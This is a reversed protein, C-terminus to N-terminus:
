CVWGQNEQGAPAQLAPGRGRSGEVGQQQLVYHADPQAVSQQDVEASCTGPQGRAQLLAV